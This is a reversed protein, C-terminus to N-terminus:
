QWCAYGRRGKTRSLTLASSDSSVVRLARSGSLQSDHCCCPRSYHHHCLKGGAPAVSSVAPQEGIAAARLAAFPVSSQPFSAGVFCYRVCSAAHAFLHSVATHVHKIWCCFRRVAPQVDPRSHVCAVSRGVARHVLKGFTFRRCPLGSARRRSSILVCETHDHVNPARDM